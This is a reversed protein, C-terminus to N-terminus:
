GHGPKIGSPLAEGFKRPTEQERIAFAAIFPEAFAMNLVHRPVDPFFPQQEEASPYGQVIMSIVRDRINHALARELAEVQAKEDALACCWRPLGAPRVSVVTRHEPCYCLVARGLRLAAETPCDEDHGMHMGASVCCYGGSDDPPQPEANM